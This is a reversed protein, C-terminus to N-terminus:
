KLNFYYTITGEQMAPADASMNFHTNMAANRAAAYLSKDLVTTGDGGPVAKVVNGYNDVWINVVVIGSEQVNYAPRPINGVLSRGKVQANPRGDTRGHNTNGESQGAKFSDSSEKANHPTTANTDKKAMGPFAARPDLKPEEKPEPAPTEVDGFDDQKTEPTLNEESGEVPSESKQTLEVPRESDMEEAQPERGNMQQIIEVDDEVFDIVMHQEPPPPYIYKLGTFSVLCFAGVHIALTLVVGTVVSRRQSSNQKGKLYAM